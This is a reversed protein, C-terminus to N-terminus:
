EGWPEAKAYDSDMGWWPFRRDPGDDLDIFWFWVDHPTDDGKMKLSVRMADNDDWDPNQPILWVGNVDNKAFALSDYVGMDELKDVLEQRDEDTEPILAFYGGFKSKDSKRM